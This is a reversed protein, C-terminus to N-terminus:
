SPPPCRLTRLVRALPAVDGGRAGRIAQLVEAREAATAVFRGAKEFKNELQAWTLPDSPEGRPATTKSAYREGGALITVRALTREPFAADLDARM